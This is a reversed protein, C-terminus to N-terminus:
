WAKRRERELKSVFKILIDCSGGGQPICHGTYDLERIPIGQAAAIREVEELSKARYGEIEYLIRKTIGKLKTDANDVSALTEDNSGVYRQYNKKFEDFSPAGFKEPNRVLESFDM